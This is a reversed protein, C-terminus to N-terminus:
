PTYAVRMPEDLEEGAGRHLVAQPRTNVADVAYINPDALRGNIYPRLPTLPRRVHDVITSSPVTVHRHMVTTTRHMLHM